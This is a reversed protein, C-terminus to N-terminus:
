SDGMENIRKNDKPCINACWIKTWKSRYSINNVGM